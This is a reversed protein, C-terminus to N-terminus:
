SRRSSSLPPVDLQVDSKQARQPLAGGLAERRERLYKM